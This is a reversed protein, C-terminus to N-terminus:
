CRFWTKSKGRVHNGYVWVDKPVKPDVDCRVERWVGFGGRQNGWDHHVTKGGEKETVTVGGDTRDDFAIFPLASAPSAAVGIVVSTAGALALPLLWKSLGM